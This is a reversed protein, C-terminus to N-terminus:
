KSVSYPPEYDAAWQTLDSPKKPSIQYRMPHSKTAWLILDPPEYSSIQHNMYSLIQHSMLYEDNLCSFHFTGLKKIYVFKVM